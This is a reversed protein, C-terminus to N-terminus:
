RHPPATRDLSLRALEGGLHTHVRWSLAVAVSALAVVLGWWMGRAGYGARLCLWAGLPLGIAVYGMLNIMMPVRTDGAGRLIGSSVGQVGDFMQFLGALPILTVAIAIVEPDTSFLRALGDPITLLVTAAVAMFGVGCALAASAERRAGDLDGRGIARGVLVAAAANVGLPVMYTLAALSIAIEHGALPTTGLLGVIVLAGGFAVIEFFQHVGISVGIGLMRSIPAWRLTDTRWPRISGGLSRWALVALIALMLYRGITTSISSGVVGLPPVGWRGYIFIWNLAVNAVNAVVVALLVPRVQHLAQLTQRFAVFLFFPLASPIQILVYKAALPVVDSPQGLGRLVWETPLLMLSSFVTMIVALVVGRQVGLAVAEDDNAGLAQSVVPDIAMVVGAGFLAVTMWWFNGLAAAALDRASVRGVMAADVTGMLMLGVQVGVIPTALRAVDRIERRTPM